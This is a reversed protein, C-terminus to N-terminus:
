RLQLQWMQRASVAIEVYVRKGRRYRDQLPSTIQTIFASYSHFLVFLLLSYCYVSFSTVFESM